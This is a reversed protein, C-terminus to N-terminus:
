VMGALADQAPPVGFQAVAQLIRLYLSRTQQLNQIAARIAEPPALALHQVGAHFHRSDTKARAELFGTCGPGFEARVRAAVEAAGQAAMGELVLAYGAHAAAGFRDLWYYQSQYLLSTDLFEPSNALEVGFSKVDQVLLKQHDVERRLRELVADHAPWDVVGNRAAIMSLFIPTHRSYYHTQALWCSYVKRSEWPVRRVAGLLEAILQEFLCNLSAEDM